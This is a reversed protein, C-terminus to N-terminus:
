LLNHSWIQPRPQLKVSTGQLHEGRTRRDASPRLMQARFIEVNVLAHFFSPVQMHEAHNWLNTAEAEVNSIKLTQTHRFEYVFAKTKTCCSYTNQLHKQFLRVLDRRQVFVSAFMEGQLESLSFFFLFIVRIKDPLFIGFGNGSEFCTQM